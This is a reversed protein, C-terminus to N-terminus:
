IKDNQFHSLHEYPLILRGRYLGCNDNMLSNNVAAFMNVNVKSLDLKQLSSVREIADDFIPFEGVPINSRRTRNKEQIKEYNSHNAMGIEAYDDM